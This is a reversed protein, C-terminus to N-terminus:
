NTLLNLPLTCKERSVLVLLEFLLLFLSAPLLANAGEAESNQKFYPKKRDSYNFLVCAITDYGTYRHTKHARFLYRM